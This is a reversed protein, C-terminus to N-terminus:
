GQHFHQRMWLLAETGGGASPPSNFPRWHSDSAPGRQALKPLSGPAMSVLSLEGQVEALATSAGASSPHSIYPLSFLQTLVQLFRLQKEMQSGICQNICVQVPLQDPKLEM